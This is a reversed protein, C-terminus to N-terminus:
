IALMLSGGALFDIIASLSPNHGPNQQRYFRSNCMSPFSAAAGLSSVYSLLSQDKGAHLNGPRVTPFPRPLFAPGGTSSQTGNVIRLMWILTVAKSCPPIQADAVTNRRLVTQSESVRKCSKRQLCVGGGM